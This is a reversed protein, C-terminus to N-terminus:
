KFMVRMWDSRKDTISTLVVLEAFRENLSVYELPVSVPANMALEMLQTTVLVTRNRPAKGAAMVTQLGDRNAISSSLQDSGNNPRLLPLDPPLKVPRLNLITQDNVVRCRWREIKAANIFNHLTVDSIGINIIM